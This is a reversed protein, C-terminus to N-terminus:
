FLVYSAMRLTSMGTMLEVVHSHTEKFIMEIYQPNGEELKKQLYRCGHQDKCLSYIDNELSELKVNTFRNVLLADAVTFHQHSRALCVREMMAEKRCTAAQCIISRSPHIALGLARSPIFRITEM